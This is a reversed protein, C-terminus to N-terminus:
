ELKKVKSNLKNINLDHNEITHTHDKIKQAYPALLKHMIQRCHTEFNFFDLDKRFASLRGEEEELRQDLENQRGGDKM